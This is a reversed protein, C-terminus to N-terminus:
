REPGIEPPLFADFGPEPPPESRLSPPKDSGTRLEEWGGLTMRLQVLDGGREVQLDVEDGPLRDMLRSVLDPFSMITEGDFRVVTDGPQVGAREAAGNPVVDAIMCRDIAQCRIGLSAGREQIRAGPLRAALKQVSEFPVGNGRINTVDIGCGPLHAGWNYELRAVHWLGEEGGRWEKLLMIHVKAFPFDPISIRNEFGGLPGWQLIAFQGPDIEEYEVKGGLERIAAVARQERLRQHSALVTLARRGMVATPSAALRELAREADDATSLCGDVFLRELLLLSSRAVDPNDDRAAQELAPVAQPGLEHLRRFADERVAFDEAGLQVILRSVAPDSTRAPLQEPEAGAALCTAALLCALLILTRNM